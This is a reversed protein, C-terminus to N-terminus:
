ALLLAEDNSRPTNNGIRYIKCRLRLAIAEGRTGFRASIFEIKEDNFFDVDLPFYELGQKIPRGAM